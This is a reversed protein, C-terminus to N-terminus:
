QNDIVYKADYYLASDISLNNNKAKEKILSFWSEDAKIIDKMQIIENHKMPNEKLWYIGIDYRWVKFVKVSDANKELDFNISAYYGDSCAQDTESIIIDPQFKQIINKDNLYGKWVPIVEAKTKWTFSAAWPGLVKSGKPLTKSLYNNVTAIDNTRREFVQYNYYCNQLAIFGFIVFVLFRYKKNESLFVFVFASILALASILLLLYRFPIYFMSIKPLEILLWILLFSFGGIFSASSKKFFLSACFCIIGVVALIYYLALEKIWLVHIFNFHIVGKINTLSKPFREAVQAALLYDIFEKHPLYWCCFYIGAFFSSFLVSWFLIKWNARKEKIQLLLLYLFSAVPLILITTILQFSTGYVLFIFFASFFLPKKYSEPKEIVKLFFYFSFLLFAVAMMYVLGYHSFHFLHLQTLFILLMTWAFVRTNKPFYFLLVASFVLCLVIIRSVWLHTGLVFFFPIHLFHYVPSRVFTDNSLVDLFGLDVLQRSQLSYLAEDIWAGRTNIDLLTDPDYNIFCLQFAFVLGLLFFFGYKKLCDLFINV